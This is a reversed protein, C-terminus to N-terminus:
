DDKELNKIREKLIDREEEYSKILWGNLYGKMVLETEVISLRDKSKELLEKINDDSM